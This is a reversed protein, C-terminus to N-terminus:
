APKTIKALKSAVASFEPLKFDINTNLITEGEKADKLERHIIGALQMRGQPTAVIQAITMNKFGLTEVKGSNPAGFLLKTEQLKILKKNFKKNEKKQMDEEVLLDIFFELDMNINQVPPLTKCYAEAEELIPRDEKKYPMVDTSGGYGCNKAYGVVKGNVSIDATFATTEESLALSIKLKKLEIKM